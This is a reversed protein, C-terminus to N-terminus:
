FYYKPYGYYFYKYRIYVNKKAFYAPIFGGGM